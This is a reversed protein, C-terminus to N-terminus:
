SSSVQTKELVELLVPPIEQNDLYSFIENDQLLMIIIFQRTCRVVAVTILASVEYPLFIEEM